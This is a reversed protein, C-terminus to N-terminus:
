RFWTLKEGKLTSAVAGVTDYGIITKDRRDQFRRVFPRGDQYTATGDSNIVVWEEDEEALTFEFAIQGVKKARKTPLEFLERSHIYIEDPALSSGRFGDGVTVRLEARARPRHFTVEVDRIRKQSLLAHVPISLYKQPLNQNTALAEILTDLAEGFTGARKADSWVLRRYRRVSEPAERASASANVGILLNTADAYGMQYASLGRGGTGILGAERVYRAVLRVTAPDMGERTAVTEVLQELTAM